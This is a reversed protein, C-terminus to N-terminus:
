KKIKCPIKNFDLDYEDCLRMCARYAQFAENENDSMSLAKLKKIRNFMEITINGYVYESMQPSDVNASARDQPIYDETLLGYKQNQSEREERLVDDEDRM